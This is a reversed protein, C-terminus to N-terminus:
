CDRISDNPVAGHVFLQTPIVLIAKMAIATCPSQNAPQFLDAKGDSELM